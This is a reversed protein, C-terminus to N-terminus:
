HGGRVAESGASRVREHPQEDHQARIWGAAEAGCRRHMERCPWRVQCAM